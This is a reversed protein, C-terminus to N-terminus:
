GPNTDVRLGTDACSLVITSSVAYDSPSLRDPHVWKVHGDMYAFDAGATHKRTPLDTTLCASFNGDNLTEQEDVLAITAAPADIESLSRQSVLNNMSYSLHKTAIAAGDDPCIYVATSKVYPYLAGQTVDFVDTPAAIVPAPIWGPQDTIGGAASDPLREDSDQVYEVFALGLQKLNSQCSARRANERVKSFIPFLISALIAIIAIVVLLEILTFGATYKKM